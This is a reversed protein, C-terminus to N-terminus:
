VLQLGDIQEETLATSGDEGNYGVLTLSGIQDGLQIIDSCSTHYEVTQIVPGGRDDAIGIGTNSGDVNVTFTGGTSVQQATGTIGGSKGKGGKGGKGGGGVIFAIDDDDATGDLEFKEQATNIGNSPRYLFTLSTPKGLTDCLDGQIVPPNPNPTLVETNPVEIPNLQDAGTYNAPDSDTVTIAAGDAGNPDTIPTGNDDVATAVVTGINTQLGSAATQSASYTFIENTDLLGNNNDDGGILTPAGIRDDSVDDIRLATDGDNSVTYTFVINDGIIADVGPATDADIDSSSAGGLRTSGSTGEFGVLRLNGIQDGLRIPSECSADYTIEQTGSAGEVELNLTDLGDPRVVFTDGLAIPTGDPDTPTPNPNPTPTGIVGGKGKGKGGKGSKGSKSKGKGKGGGGVLVVPDAVGPIISLVEVNADGIAPGSVSAISQSTNNVSPGGVYEFILGVPEGFESCLDTGEPSGEGEVRVLKEIDIAPNVDVPDPTAILGADVTPDNEGADLTVFDSMLTAPDIDSDVTDDSGANPTTATFGDPVDVTIKYDDPALGDFGYIGNDDTTDTQTVSGDRNTLTVTVGSIGSEGADQIGNNNADNFVRDGLSATEQPADPLLGGDLDPNNEGAALNVVDSMGTDPNIDSDATDDSGANRTTFGSFGDPTDVAIKYDGPTLNDFGYIGNGDTTDTELTRGDPTQLRVTVGEVGPEGADQLGNGNTDAFIRDGLSAPQEPTSPILGGDLNPNNEGAALNVVDSMGTAPDIDSDATDDSGANRTTFGDFGDPTDVTIKYNGPALNDFGYIGNGDTTDTELTRGEPTQLRVTVGEVGPEGADQLGNGNTDAFIRDGM